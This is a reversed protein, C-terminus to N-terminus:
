APRTQISWVFAMTRLRGGSPGASIGMSFTSERLKMSPETWSTDHISDEFFIALSLFTLSTHNKYHIYRTTKCLGRLKFHQNALVTCGVCRTTSCIKSGWGESKKTGICNKTVGGSPEGEGWNTYNTDAGLPSGVIVNSVIEEYNFRTM